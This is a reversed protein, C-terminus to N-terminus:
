DPGGVGEGRRAERAEVVENREEGTEGPPWGDGLTPESEVDGLAMDGAGREIRVQREVMEVSSYSERSACYPATSILRCSTMHSSHSVSFLKTSPNFLTISSNANGSLLSCPPHILPTGTGTELSSSQAVSMTYTLLRKM